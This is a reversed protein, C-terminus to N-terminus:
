FSEGVCGGIGGLLFVSFGQKIFIKLIARVRSDHALMNALDNALPDAM